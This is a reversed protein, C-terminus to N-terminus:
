TTKLRYKVLFRRRIAKGVIVLQEKNITDVKLQHVLTVLGDIREELYVKEMELQKNEKETSLCKNAFSDRAAEITAVKQLLSNAREVKQEMEVKEQCLISSRTSEKGLKQKTSILEKRLSLTLEEEKALTDKAKKIETKMEEFNVVKKKLANNEIVLKQNAQRLERPADIVTSSSMKEKEYRKTLTDIAKNHDTKLSERVKRLSEICEVKEGAIDRAHKNTARKLNRQSEGAQELAADKTSNAKRLEEKLKLIQEQLSTHCANSANLATKAKQAAESLGLFVSNLNNNVYTSTSILHALPDPPISTSATTDSPPLPTASKTPAPGLAELKVRIREKRAAEERAEEGQRRQIALDRAQRMIKKQAELPDQHMATPEDPKAVPASSTSESEM